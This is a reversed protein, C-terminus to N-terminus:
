PENRVDHTSLYAGVLFQHDPMGSNYSHIYALVSGGTRARIGQQATFMVRATHISHRERRMQDERNDMTMRMLWYKQFRKGM